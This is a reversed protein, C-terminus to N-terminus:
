AQGAPQVPIAREGFGAHSHQGEVTLGARAPSYLLLTAHVQSAIIASLDWVSGDESTSDPGRFNASSTSAGITANPRDLLSASARSCASPTLVTRSKASLLCTRRACAMTFSALALSYSRDTVGVRKPIVQPM